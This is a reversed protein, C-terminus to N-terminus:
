WGHKRERAEWALLIDEPVQAAAAKAAVLEKEQWETDESALELRIRELNAKHGAIPRIIDKDESNPDLTSIEHELRAIDKKPGDIWKELTQILRLPEEAQYRVLKEQQFQDYSSQFTASDFNSPWGSAIYM